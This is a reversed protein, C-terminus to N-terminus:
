TPGKTSSITNNSERVAKVPIWASLRNRNSLIYYGTPDLYLYWCETWGRRPWRFRPKLVQLVMMQVRRLIIAIINIAISNCALFPAAYLFAASLHESISLSSSHPGPIPSGLTWDVSTSVSPNNGVGSGEIQGGWRGASRLYTGLYIM